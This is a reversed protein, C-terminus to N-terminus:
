DQLKQGPKLDTPVPSVARLEEFGKVSIDAWQKFLAKFDSINTM